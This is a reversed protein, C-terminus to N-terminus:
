ALGGPGRGVPVEEGRIGSHGLIGFSFGDSAVSGGDGESAKAITWGSGDVINVARAPGEGGM